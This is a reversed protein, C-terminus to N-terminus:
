KADLVRAIIDLGVSRNLYEWVALVDDRHHIQVGAEDLSYRARNLWRVNEAPNAQLRRRTQRVLLIVDDPVRPVNAGFFKIDPQQKSRERKEVVTRKREISDKDLRAAKVNLLQGIMSAMTGEPDELRVGSCYPREGGPAAKEALRSWVVRAPLSIRTECGQASFALRVTSRPKIPTSHRLQAGHLAMDVVVVDVGALRGEVRRTVSYRDETRCEVVNM